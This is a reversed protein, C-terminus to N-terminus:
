EDKWRHWIVPAVGEIEVNFLVPEETNIDPNLCALNYGGKPNKVLRRFYQAANKLYVICDKNIGAEIANGFRMKGGVYNGPKFFPRMEDNSVLMVVANSYKEKFENADRIMAIEDDEVPLDKQTPISFYRGVTLQSTPDLGVGELIWDESVILGEQKYAEICRKIGTSTINNTGNEWAKLTVEPIEYKEQLYSRSVRLMARIYRLREGPSSLGKTSQTLTTM